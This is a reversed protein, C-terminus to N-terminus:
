GDELLRRTHTRMEQGGETGIVKFGKERLYWMMVHEKFKKLFAEADTVNGWKLAIAWMVANATDLWDMIQRAHGSRGDKSAQTFVSVAYRHEITLDVEADSIDHSM